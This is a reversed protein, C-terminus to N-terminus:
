IRLCQLVPCVKGLGVAVQDIEEQVARLVDQDQTLRASREVVERAAEERLRAFVQQVDRRMRQELVDVEARWTADDDALTRHEKDIAALDGVVREKERQLVATKTMMLEREMGAIEDVHKAAHGFHKAGPKICDLCLLVKDQECFLSMAEHHDLCLLPRESIEVRAHRGMFTSSHFNDDCAHCLASSCNKCFLKAARSCGVNECVAMDGAMDSACMANSSETADNESPGELAYVRPLAELAAPDM